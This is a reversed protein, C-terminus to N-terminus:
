LASANGHAAHHSCNWGQHSAPAQACGRMRTLWVSVRFGCLFLLFFIWYDRTIMRSCKTRRNQFELWSQSAQSSQRLYWLLVVAMEPPLNSRFVSLNSWDIKRDSFFWFNLLKVQCTMGKTRKLRESRSRAGPPPAPTATRSVRRRPTPPCRHRRRAAAAPAPAGAGAGPRWATWTRRSLRHAICSTATATACSQQENPNIESFQFQNNSSLLWLSYHSM